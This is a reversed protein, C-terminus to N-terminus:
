EALAIVKIDDFQAFTGPGVGLTMEGQSLRLDTIEIILDNDLFVRIQAKQAEIRISYWIGKGITMSKNGLVQFPPETGLFIAQSTIPLQYYQKGQLRFICFVMSDPSAFDFIRTRFEIAYNKWNPSGFRIQPYETRNDIEYVQNGTEDAALKWNGTEVYMFPLPKNDEFNEQFLIKAPPNQPSPPSNNGTTSTEGPEINAPPQTPTVTTSTNSVAQFTNTQKPILPFIYLYIAISMFIVGIGGSIIRIIKGVSPIKIASIEFGGGLIGILFFIAGIFLLIGENNQPM